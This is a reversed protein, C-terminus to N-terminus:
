KNEGQNSKTQASESSVVIPVNSPLVPTVVDIPTIVDSAPESVSQQSKAENENITPRSLVIM